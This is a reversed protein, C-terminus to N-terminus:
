PPCTASFGGATICAVLQGGSFDLGVNEVAADLGIATSDGSGPAGLVTIGRDNNEAALNELVQSRGLAAIGDDGNGSTLCGRVVSSLGVFVGDVGNANSVCGEVTLRGNNNTSRIGDAGNVDAVSNSVRSTENAVLGHSANGRAVSDTVLSGFGVHIGTGCNQEAIVREVRSNAGLLLVGDSGMGRVHGNTVVVDNASASIVGDGSGSATCSGGPGPYTNTGQITFGNLDVSVGAATISILTTTQNPPTLNSTLRYSGRTTIQVPFGATDGSFCGPGSGCAQNIELVGDVADASSAISTAILTVKLIGVASRM